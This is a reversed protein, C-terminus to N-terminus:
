VEKFSYRIFYKIKELTMETAHESDKATIRYERGNSGQSMSEMAELIDSTFNDLDIIFTKV